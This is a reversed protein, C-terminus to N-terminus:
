DGCLCNINLEINHRLPNLTQLEYIWKSEHQSFIIMKNSERWHLHYKEIGWFELPLIMKTITQM